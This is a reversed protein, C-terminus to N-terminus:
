LDVDEDLVEDLVCWFQTAEYLVSEIQEDHRVLLKFALQLIAILIETHSRRIINVEKYEEDLRLQLHRYHVSDHLVHQYIRLLHHLTQLLVSTKKLYLSLLVGAVPLDLYQLIGSDEGDVYM